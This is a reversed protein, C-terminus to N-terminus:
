KFWSTKRDIVIPLAKRKFESREHRDIVKEIVDQKINNKLDRITKERNKNSGLYTKLINEVDEYSDAGIQELDSNSIGLGDTPVLLISKM